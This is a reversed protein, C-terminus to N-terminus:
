TLRRAFRTNFLAFRTDFLAFSHGHICSPALSHYLAFAFTFSPALHAARSTESTFASCPLQVRSSGPFRIPLDRHSAFATDPSAPHSSSTPPPLCSRRSLTSSRNPFHRQRKPSLPTLRRSVNPLRRLVAYARRDSAATVSSSLGLPCAGNPLSTSM